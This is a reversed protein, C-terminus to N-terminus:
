LRLVPQLAGKELRFVRNSVRRVQETSHSVMVLTCHSSLEVLLAEIAAEAQPDLSSTPEDLLLIEPEAVLARAICLRQQQGGSLRLASAEMRDAVEEWLHAKVLATRVRNRIIEPDKIGAIKLPLAVNRFISMPLPNPVQFVMGVKRRLHSLDLNQAHVEQWGGSFRIQLSGTARAQEEEEWLRNCTTLFSSKGAGSPGIICTIGKAPFVGEINQFVPRAGYFFSLDSFQIKPEDPM